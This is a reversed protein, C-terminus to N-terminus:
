PLNRPALLISASDLYGKPTLALRLREVGGPQMTAVGSSDFFALRAASGSFPGAVPQIGEGGSVSRAGLWWDGSSQYFRMQMVEFARVPALPSIGSLESSDLQTKVRLAPIGACDSQSLAFIPATVWRGAPVFSDSTLYVMLSDRGAQLMRWSSQLAREVRIESSTVLCAVGNLRWGRYTLSDSALSLLDPNGDGKGAEALESEIWSASQDITRRANDVEVLATAARRQGLLLRTLAAGLLGVLVLGILLEVLTVGRRLMLSM